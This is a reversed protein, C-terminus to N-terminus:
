RSHGVVREVADVRQDQAEEEVLRGRRPAEEANLSRMPPMVTASTISGSGTVIGASVVASSRRRRTRGASGSATTGPRRRADAAVSPTAGSALLDLVRDRAAARRAGHGLQDVRSARASGCRCAVLRELRQQRSGPRRSSPASIATSASPTSAADDRDLLDAPRQAPTGCPGANADAAAAASISERAMGAWSTNIMPAPRAPWRAARAAASAPAVTAIMHLDMGDARVRDRGGAADVGRDVGVVVPARVGVVRDLARVEEAVLVRDLDHARSAGSSTRCRSCMPTVKWRM